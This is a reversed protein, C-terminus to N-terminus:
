IDSIHYNNNLNLEKVAVWIEPSSPQLDLRCWTLDEFIGRSQQVIMAGAGTSITCPRICVLSGYNRPHQNILDLLTEIM